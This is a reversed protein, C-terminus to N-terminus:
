NSQLQFFPSTVLPRVVWPSGVNLEKLAAGGRPFDIVAAEPLIKLEQGGPNENLSGPMERILIHLSIRTGQVCLIYVTVRVSPLLFSEKYLKSPERAFMDRRPVFQM